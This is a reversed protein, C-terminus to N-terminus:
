DQKENEGDGQFSKVEKLAQRTFNAENKSYLRDKETMTPYFETPDDYTRKYQAEGYEKCLDNFHADWELAKEPTYNEGEDDTGYRGTEKENKLYFRNFVEEDIYTEIFARRFINDKPLAKIGNFFGERYKMQGDNFNRTGGALSMVDISFIYELCKFHNVVAPDKITKIAEDFDRLMSLYDDLSPLLECLPKRRTKKDYMLAKLIAEGGEKLEGKLGAMLSLEDNDLLDKQREQIDKLLEELSSFDRGYDKIRNKM